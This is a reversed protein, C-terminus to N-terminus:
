PKVNVDEVKLFGNEILYILMKAIADSLKIDEIDGCKFWQDDSDYYDVIWNDSYKRIELYFPDNFDEKMFKFPLMEGLEAVSFAEFTEPNSNNKEIFEKKLSTPEWIGGVYQWRWLSKQNIGLEKLKKALQLSVVQDKLKM